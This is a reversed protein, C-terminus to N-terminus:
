CGLEQAANIYDSEDIISDDCMELFYLEQAAGNIWVVPHYLVVTNILAFEVPHFHWVRGDVPLGVAEAVEDWFKMLDMREKLHALAEPHDPMM